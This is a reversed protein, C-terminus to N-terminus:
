RTYDANLGSGSTESRKAISLLAPGLGLLLWLQKSYQGSFFFGAALNGILAIAVCLAAAQM